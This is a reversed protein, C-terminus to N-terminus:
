TVEGTPRSVDEQPALPQSAVVMKASGEQKGRSAIDCRGVFNAGEEIVLQKYVIDGKVVSHSRLVVKGNTTVNGEIVGGIYADSSKVNGEVHGSRTIRVSSETIVNGNVKGAIIAGGKLLIDGSVVADEGIMTEVHKLSDKTM